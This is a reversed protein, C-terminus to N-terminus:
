SLARKVEKVTYCEIIDGAQVDDYGDVRIGCEHGGEASRIDDKEHKLSGIAGEHVVRGDRLLRIKQGRRISGERVFCGAINGVRSVRFVQRVEAVGLREEVHEPELLGELADKVDQVLEYIVRYYRVDVGSEQALVRARDETGVRFALIVADSADALLVDSVNVAGVGQHLARIGVEGTGLKQMSTVIPELSGKVDTKLVMRLQKEGGTSLSEFLNELTVHTRRQRRQVDIRYQIEEALNRATDVNETVVFTDGAGPVRNLGSISVPTSPGAERIEQGHENILARARGYAPGCVLFDGQKLTGDRVVANAVVGRGEVMRAELVVGTAPGAPNGRLELIEAELLTREILDDIGDGTIASMPICGVQGGWEEPNLELAALQQQVRMVNADPKDIKNLAVVIPVEAARAHSIAEETQAMVGDDAAVVLIVVDTVRAGRARMQTFAEHGPTDVFTVVHNKYNIQWAGIDQTIGGDETGAVHTNRIRDLISTKGHDVHGLLVIVPGRPTAEGLKREPMLGALMEEASKPAKFTIEVGFELGVLEIVEPELVENINARIQHELMLKKIIDSAGVGMKECLERVTVPPTLELKTEREKTPMKRMQKFVVTRTRRARKAPKPAGAGAAEGEEAGAKAGEREAATRQAEELKEEDRRVAVKARRGRPAPPAIPKVHETSPIVKPKKPEEKKAAKAGKAKAEKAKPEKAKAKGKPEPKKKAPKKKAPPEEKPRFLRLAAKRIDQAQEETVTNSHHKIDKFGVRQCIELLEKNSIDFSLTKRIEFIKIKDAM